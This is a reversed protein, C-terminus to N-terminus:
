ATFPSGRSTLSVIRWSIACASAPAFALCPGAHFAIALRSPAVGFARASSPSSARAPRSAAFALNRAPM